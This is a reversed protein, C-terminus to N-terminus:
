LMNHIASVQGHKNGDKFYGDYKDGNTYTQIDKRVCVVTSPLFAGVDAWILPIPKLVRLPSTNSTKSAVLATALINHRKEKVRKGMVNRLANHYMKKVRRRLQSLSSPFSHVQPSAGVGPQIPISPIFTDDRLRPRGTTDSLPTRYM